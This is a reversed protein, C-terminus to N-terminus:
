CQMALALQQTQKKMSGKSKSKATKYHSHNSTKMQNPTSHKVLVTDSSSQLQANGQRCVVGITVTTPETFVEDKLFYSLDHQIMDIHNAHRSISDSFEITYDVEASFKDWNNHKDLSCEFTMKISPIHLKVGDFKDVTHFFTVDFASAHSSTSEQQKYTYHLSGNSEKGNRTGKRQVM